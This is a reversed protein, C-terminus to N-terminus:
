YAFYFLFFFFSFILSHYFSAVLSVGCVSINHNTDNDEIYKFMNNLTQKIDEDIDTKKVDEEEEDIQKRILKVSNDLLKNASVHINKWFGFWSLIFNLVVFFVFLFLM